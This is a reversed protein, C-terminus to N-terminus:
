AVYEVATIRGPRDSHLRFTGGELPVEVDVVNHKILESIHDRSLAASVASADGEPALSIRAALEHEDLMDHLQSIHAVTEAQEPHVHYGDGHAHAKLSSMTPLFMDQVREANMLQIPEDHTFHERVDTPVPVISLRFAATAPAQLCECATVPKQTKKVFSM